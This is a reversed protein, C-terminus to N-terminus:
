RNPTDRADPPAPLYREVPGEYVVVIRGPSRNVQRTGGIAAGMIALGLGVAIGASGVIARELEAEFGGGSRTMNLTSGLTIALGPTAGLLAGTGGSARGRVVTIRAIDETPVSRRVSRDMQLASFDTSAERIRVREARAVRTGNAFEIQVVIDRLDANVDALTGPLASTPLAAQPARPAACGSLLLLAAVLRTM